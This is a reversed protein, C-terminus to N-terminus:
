FCIGVLALFIYVPWYHAYDLTLSFKSLIFIVWSIKCENINKSFFSDCTTLSNVIWKNGIYPVKMTIQSFLMKTLHKSLIGFNCEFMLVWIISLILGLWVQFRRLFLGLLILLVFKTLQMTTEFFFTYLFRILYLYTATLGTLLLHVSGNKTTTFNLQTILM